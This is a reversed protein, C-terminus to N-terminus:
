DLSDLDAALAGLGLATYVAGAQRKLRVSEPQGRLQQQLLHQASALQGSKVLADLHIQSFLDRQAHSGGIAILQPLAHDGQAHARLGRSAPLCVRQWTARVAEPARQAHAAINTLLTQAEPRGARAM